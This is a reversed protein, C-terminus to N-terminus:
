TWSCSNQLQVVWKLVWKDWRCQCVDQSKEMQRLKPMFTLIQWDTIWNNLMCSVMKQLENFFCQWSKRWSLKMFKVSWFPLFGMVYFETLIPWLIKIVVGYLLLDYTSFLDMLVCIPPLSLNRTNQLYLGVFLLHLLVNYEEANGILGLSWNSNGKQWKWTELLWFPLELVFAFEFSFVRALRM